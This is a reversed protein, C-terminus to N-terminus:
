ADAFRAFFALTREGFLRRAEHRVRRRVKSACLSFFIVIWIADARAEMAVGDAPNNRGRPDDVLCRARAVVTTVHPAAPPAPTSAEVSPLCLSAAMAARSLQTVEEFRLMPSLYSAPLLGWGKRGRGVGGLSFRSEKFMRVSKDLYTDM